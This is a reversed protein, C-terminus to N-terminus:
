KTTKWYGESLIYDITKKPANLKDLIYKQDLMSERELKIDPKKYSVGSKFRKIDCAERYLVGAYWEKSYSATEKDIKCIPSTLQALIEPHKSLCITGIHRIIFNYEDPLNAKLLELTEITRQIFEKNGCIELGNYNESKSFLLKLIFFVNRVAYTIKMHSDGTHVM